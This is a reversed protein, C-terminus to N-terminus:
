EAETREYKEGKSFVKLMRQLAQRLEVAKSENMPNEKKDAEFIYYLFHHDMRAEDDKPM